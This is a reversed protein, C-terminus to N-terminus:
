HRVWIEFGRIDTFNMATGEHIFPLSKVFVTKKPDRTVRVNWFGETYYGFM